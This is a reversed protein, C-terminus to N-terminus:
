QCSGSAGGNERCMVALFKSKAHPAQPRRQHSRLHSFPPQMAIRGDGKGHFIMSLTKVETNASSGSGCGVLLLTGLIPILWLSRSANMPQTLPRQVGCLNFALASNATMRRRGFAARDAM